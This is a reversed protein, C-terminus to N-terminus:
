TTTNLSAVFLSMVVHPILARAAWDAMQSEEVMVRKRGAISSVFNVLQERTSRVQKRKVIVGESNRVTFDTTTSHLYMGIYKM